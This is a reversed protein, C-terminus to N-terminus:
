QEIPPVQFFVAWNGSGPQKGNLLQKFETSDVTEWYGSDPSVIEVWTKGPKLPIPNRDRDIFRIPRLRGTKREYEDNGTTWFIEQVKGDRFLLAPMRSIYQLDINFFTSDTFHYQAFLVVVNEFALPNGTIADVQQTFTKGDANDQTRLYAGAAPDYRWFVQNTPHYPIWLFNGPKAEAPPQPDFRLGYLRTSGLRARNEKAFNQLDPVSIRATNVSTKSNGYIIKYEDLNELVRDSASAFVLLGKYLLRLREYPLRGSRIPGLTVPEEISKGDKSVTTIEPPLDGYFLTLFRTVGEGIYMEFVLPSFSLGSQPRTSLPSNSISVLVPPLDLSAPDKVPLGTLSNIGAPFEDPGVPSPIQTPTATASNQLTVAATPAQRTLFVAESPIASITSAPTNVASSTTITPTLPAASTQCGAATLIIGSIIIWYVIKRMSVLGIGFINLVKHYKNYELRTKCYIKLGYIFRRQNTDLASKLNM